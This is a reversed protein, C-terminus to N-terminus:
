FKRDTATIQNLEWSSYPFLCSLFHSFGTLAAVLLDKCAGCGAREPVQGFGPFCGTGKGKWVLQFCPFWFEMVPYAAVDEPKNGPAMLWDLQWKASALKETWVACGPLWRHM